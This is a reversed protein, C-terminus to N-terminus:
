LRRALDELAPAPIGNHSKTAALYKKLDEVAKAEDKLPYGDKLEQHCTKCNIKEGGAEANKVASKMLAKAGDLGKSECAAKVQPVKFATRTCKEPAAEEGLALSAGALSTVAFVAVWFSKM